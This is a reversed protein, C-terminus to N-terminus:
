KAELADLIREAVKAISLSTTNRLATDIKELKIERETKPSHKAWWVALQNPLNDWAANLPARGNNPKRWNDVQKCVKVLLQEEESPEQPEGNFEEALVKLLEAEGCPIPFYKPYGGDYKLEVGYLGAMDEEV